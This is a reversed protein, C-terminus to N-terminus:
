LEVIDLPESSRATFEILSGPIDALFRSPLNLQKEGWRGRRRAFVLYVRTKARTLGVYCLRREEELGAPSLLSREHPFLGEELGTIFVVDFELGKASHLTMLYVLEAAPDIEDTPMALAVEELFGALAARAPLHDFKSSVTLLEQVNGWREEGESTGDNLYAEYKIRKVLEEVLVGFTSEELRARFEDLLAFFSGVQASQVQTPNTLLRELTVRGIGRPPVNAVRALALADAPNALLRLYAIIDKVERRDYFRVSGITKYPVGREVLAGELARSQANTRYLVGVKEPAGGQKLLREIENAVFAAEDEETETEVIRIKEGEKKKTWLNKETRFVNKEIVAQASDLITQDSRYNEELLVIKAEPYDKEFQLINRFDAGRFGYIAQWDDGVVCLNRHQAALLNLFVYQAHNTDQYEDVLLHRFQNQYRELILPAKKFILIPLVLLDDFDVAGAERLRAQYNFYIQGVTKEYNDEAREIFGRPSVLENKARSITAAVGGVRFREISLELRNMIEKLISRQDKEDYIVFESTRGILAAHRRLIRAGLAHFTGVFPLKNTQLNKLKHNKSKDVKLSILKYVRQRMEEAARNTFTLAVIAEVPVGSQVLYAIRHTLARTKGAGAGAVILLPGEGATVAEKQRDNLASLIMEDMSQMTRSRRSLSLCFSAHARYHFKPLAGGAGTESLASTRSGPTSLDCQGEAAGLTLYFLM